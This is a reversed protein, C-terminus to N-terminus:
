FWILLLNNLKVINANKLNRAFIRIYNTLHQM